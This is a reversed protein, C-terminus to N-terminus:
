SRSAINEIGDLVIFAAWYKPHSYDVHVMEGKIKIRGKFSKVYQQAEKLSKVPSGTKFLNEYFKTMLLSTANDDIEWLSMIITQVGASKFGRQLGYVGNSNIDGLGTKCASLVLLRVDSLNLSSIENSTLIGDDDFNKSEGRFTNNAGAFLLGSHSMILEEESIQSDSEIHLFGYDLHKKEIETSAWYFGHTAIHLCSISQGTLNKFQTETANTGKFVTINYKNKMKSSIIEVEKKTAPLYDFAGRIAPTGIPSTLDYEIGGFAVINRSHKSISNPTPESLIIQRTSSLRYLDYKEMLIKTQSGSSLYEIAINFLQGTPSFFVRKTDKMEEELPEWILSYISNSTYIDTKAADNIESATCLKKLKPASYDNKVILAYYIQEDESTFSDIFEIAIDENKLHDRIHSWDINLNRMYNGFRNSKAMLEQELITRRNILSDVSIYRETIPLKILQTILQSTNLLDNYTSNLEPNDVELAQKTLEIMSNLTIGKTLLVDNYLCIALSDNKTDYVIQPLENSFWVRNSEWLQNRQNSTISAFNHIIGDRLINDYEIIDRVSLIKAKYYIDLKIKLTKKYWLSGTDGFEKLLAMAKNIYEVAQEIKGTESYYQALYSYYIHMDQGDENEKAITFAEEAISIAKQYDLNQFHFDSLYLLNLAYLPHDSGLVHKYIALAQSQFEIAAKINGNKAQNDSIKALIFAYDSNDKKDTLEKLILAQEFIRISSTYDGMLEYIVGLNILSLIHSPHGLGLSKARIKVCKLMTAEALHYDELYTYISGLEHLAYSYEPHNEGLISKFISEGKRVYDLAQILNGYEVYLYGMNTYLEAGLYSDVINKSEVLMLAEELLTKADNLRGGEIYSYGLGELAEIYIKGKNNERQLLQLSLQGYEFSKEFEEVDCYFNCLHNYSTTLNVVDFPTLKLKLQLAKEEIEIAQNTNSEYYKYLALDSLLSAYVSDSSKIEESYIEIATELLSIAKSYNGEDFLTEAKNKLSLFIGTQGYSFPSAWFVFILILIHSFNRKVRTM